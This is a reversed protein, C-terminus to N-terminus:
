APKRGSVPVLVYGDRGRRLFNQRQVNPKYGTALDPVLFGDFDTIM